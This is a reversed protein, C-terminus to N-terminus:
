FHNQVCLSNGIAGSTHMRIRRLISRSPASHDTCSHIDALVELFVAGASFLAAHQLWPIKDCGAM